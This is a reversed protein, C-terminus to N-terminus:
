DNRPIRRRFQDFFQLTLVSTRIEHGLSGPWFYCCLAYCLLYIIVPLLMLVRSSSSDILFLSNIFLFPIGGLLSLLVPSFATKSFNWVGVGILKAAYAIYILSIVQTLLVAFATGVVGFTATLPYLMVASVVAIGVSFKAIFQVKGFGRLFHAPIVTLSAILYSLSLISMVASADNAFAPGVWAALINWSLYSFTIYFPASFVMFYRVAKLYTRQIKEREGQAVLESALPFMVSAAQSTGTTFVAVLKKAVSFYTVSAPGLIFGIVLEPFRTTMVTAIQSIFSFIGFSFITKVHKFAARPSFRYTPFLRRLLIVAGVVGLVNILATGVAMGLLHYDAVVLIYNLLTTLLSKLTTYKNSIDFRQLGSFVAVFDNSLLSFVFSGGAIKASLVSEAYLSDPVRLAYILFPAALVIVGGAVTGALATFAIGASMTGSVAEMDGKANYESVYKVLAPGVGMQVLSFYGSLSSVLVWVGYGEPTLKGVFVPVAILGIVM